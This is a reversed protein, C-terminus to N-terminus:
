EGRDHHETWVRRLRESDAQAPARAGDTDAGGGRQREAPAAAGTLSPFAGVDRPRRSSSSSPSASRSRARAFSQHVRKAVVGEDTAVFDVKAKDTEVEALVDGDKFSEGEAVKWAAITGAEMTPSLAPM